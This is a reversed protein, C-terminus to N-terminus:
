KEWIRKAQKDIKKVKLQWGEKRLIGAIERQIGSHAGGKPIIDTKILHDVIQKMRISMDPSENIKELVAQELLENKSRHKEAETQATAQLNIPLLPSEKEKFRYLAEAWLQKRHEKIYQRVKQGNNWTTSEKKDM